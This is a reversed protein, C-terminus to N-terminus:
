QLRGLRTQSSALATPRFRSQCPATVQRHVFRNRTATRSLVPTRRNDEKRVLTVPRAPVSALPNMKAQSKTAHEATSHIRKQKSHGGYLYCSAGLWLVGLSALCAVWRVSFLKGSLGGVNAQSAAVPYLTNPRSFPNQYTYVPFYGTNKLPSVQRAKVATVLAIGALSCASLLLVTRALRKTRTELPVCHGFCSAYWGVGIEM